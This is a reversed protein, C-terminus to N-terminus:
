PLGVGASAPLVKAAHDRLVFFSLKRREHWALAQDWAPWTYSITGQAPIKWAKSSGDGAVTPLAAPLTDSVEPEAEDQGAYSAAMVGIAPTIATGMTATTDSAHDIVRRQSPDSFHLLAWPIRLELVGSARDFWFNTSSNESQLGTRFRGTEQALQGSLMHFQTKNGPLPEHWVYESNTRAQVLLWQGADNAVTRYKQWLQQQGQGVGFLDYPRDVWLQVDTDSHIRVIFEARRETQLKGAADLRSDGRNSDVTDLAIAYDVRDWQVKGDGDPDLSQVRLRIHLFGADHSVTLDQLVRMADFGDGRPSLQPFSKVLQPPKGVWEKQQGDIHHGTTADGPLLAILGYHQNANQTNHWLRQRQGPVVVPATLWSGMFWQDIVEPLLAGHLGAQVVTRLTRLNAYGQEQENYGGHNLGSPTFHACGQSSPHGTAAILVAFNPHVKALNQLYGLWPNAGDADTVKAYDPQYSVFDPHFPYSHYAVFVGAPLTPKVEISNLDLTEYEELSHPFKPETFHVIPDTTPWNVWGLAHTQGYRQSELGALYDMHEVYFSELASAKAIAVFKGNPWGQAKHSQAGRNMTQPDLERGLLYGLLWPSVDATYTGFARGYNEPHEKPDAEAILRKGHVVDVAKDIEDKFRAVIAPDLYGNDKKAQAIDSPDALWAGQLLFLPKSPKALNYRRLEQYFEPAQVTQVRITNAGLEGVTGIWRRIQARSAQFEGPSRGPLTASFQVGYPWFAKYAGNNASIAFGTKSAWFTYRITVPAASLAQLDTLEPGPEACGPALSIAAALTTALWHRLHKGHAM